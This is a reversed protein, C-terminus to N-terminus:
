LSLGLGAAISKLKAEDLGRAKWKALKIEAEAKAIAGSHKGKISQIEKGFGQYAGLYGIQKIVSKVATEAEIAEGVAAEMQARISPIYSSLGMARLIPEMKAWYHSLRYVAEVM